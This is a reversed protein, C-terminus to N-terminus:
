PKGTLAFDFMLTGDTVAPVEVELRSDHAYRHPFPRRAPPRDGHGAGLPPLDMIEVRYKGPLLGDEAALLYRGREIRAGTKRSGAALPVFHIAAEDLPAGDLTVQGTAATRTPGCGSLALLLLGAPLFWRIPGADFSLPKEMM